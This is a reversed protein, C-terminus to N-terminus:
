RSFHRKRRRTGVLAMLGLGVLLLTVPEPVSESIVQDIQAGAGWGPLGNNGMVFDFQTTDTGGAQGQKQDSVHTIWPQGLITGAGTVEVYHRCTGTACPYRIDMEVDEGREIESQIFAFSPAGQNMATVGGATYNGAGLTGGNGADGAGNGADQFNVSLGTQGTSGLYRLKGDLPWVGCPGGNCATPNRGMSTDLQAVLSNAPNGFSGPNNPAKAVGLYTLSNAVAAPACQNVAAEVNPHNPQYHISTSGGLAFNVTGPPASSVGDENIGPGTGGIALTMAAVSLTQVPDATIALTNALPVSSFDVKLNETTVPGGSATIQFRNTITGSSELGVPVNQVLWSNSSDLVNLYGSGVTNSVMFEGNTSAAGTNTYLQDVAFNSGNFTLSTAFLGPGMALAAFALQFRSKM